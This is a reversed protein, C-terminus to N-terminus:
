LGLETKIYDRMGYTTDPVHKLDVTYVDRVGHHYMEVNKDRVVEDCSTELECVIPERSEHGFALVDCIGGKDHEVETRVRYGENILIHAVTTKSLLHKLTESGSNPEIRTKHGNALWGHEQLRRYEKIIETERNM